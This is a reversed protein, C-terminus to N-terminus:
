PRQEKKTIRSKSENVLYSPRKKLEEFIQELYIGIQGLGFMILAGTILVLLNVTTFGAGGTGSFKQFLSIGGMFVAGLAYILALMSILHLPTSTFGSLANLAFRFLKLRSWSTQGGQRPATTFYVKSTNFGMWAIMGRFFRRREPLAGYQNIVERDLLVYDSMNKVEIKTLFKFIFYFGNAFSRSLFSESGRDAKFAGVVDAGEEWLGLMEPMLTFPHQGDGDLVYCIDGASQALGAHIAAEKGFNRNFSIIQLEKFRNAAEHLENITNDKSGDDVAIIEFESAALESCQAYLKEVTSSILGEENYFPVVISVLKAQRKNTTFQSTM